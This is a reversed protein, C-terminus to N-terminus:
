AEVSILNGSATRVMTEPKSTSQDVNQKRLTKFPSVPPIEQVATREGNEGITVTTKVGSPLVICFGEVLIASAPINNFAEVLSDSREKDRGIQEIFIEKRANEEELKKAFDAYAREGMADGLSKTPTTRLEVHAPINTKTEEFGEDGAYATSLISGTLLTSAAICFLKHM